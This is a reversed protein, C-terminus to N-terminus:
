YVRDRTSRCRGRDRNKIVRWEEVEDRLYYPTRGEYHYKPGGGNSRWYGVTSPAVKLLKALDTTLLRNSDEL